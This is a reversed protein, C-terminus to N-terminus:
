AACKRRLATPLAVGLALLRDIFLPCLGTYAHEGLVHGSEDLGTQKFTFIDQMTIVDGEPRQVETLAVIKRSGDRLRSQQVILDLASVIQDRIARAPLDVGAMLVMTELRTLADRPANAHLTSMSGEHGTNMAQLMDLAEAGRVEGVIIRDPRM